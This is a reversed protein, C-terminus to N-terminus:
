VLLTSLRVLRYVALPSEARGKYIAGEFLLMIKEKQAGGGERKEGFLLPSPPRSISILISVRNQDHERTTYAHPHRDIKKRLM